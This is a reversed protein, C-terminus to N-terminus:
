KGSILHFKQSKEGTLKLSLIALIMKNKTAIIVDEFFFIFYFLNFRFVYGKTQCLLKKAEHNSKRPLARTTYSMSSVDITINFPM